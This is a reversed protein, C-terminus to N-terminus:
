KGTTIEGNKMVFLFPSSVYDAITGLVAVDSGVPPPAEIPKGLLVYFDAKKATRAEETIALHLADANASVVMASAFKLRSGSRQKALIAEWVKRAAEANRPSADRYSLIFEWDSMSLGEAGNQDVAQVALEEPGPHASVSKAFDAPPAQATSTRRVLDEWGDEGGHFRRYRARAYDEISKKAAANQGSLRVARAAYWFGRVDPPNPELLCLALQYNNQLDERDLEVAREFHPRAGAYDKAQLFSFGLAGEFIVGMQRRLKERDAEGMEPSATWDKLARLGREAYAGAGYGALRDGGTARTRLIFALIALARVNAPERDLIRAATREVSAQDGRQQYAAMAQELADTGVVSRPFQGLFAELAAAKKAPDPEKLAARYASWEAPDQITKGGDSPNPEQAPLGSAVGLALVSALLIRKVRHEEL